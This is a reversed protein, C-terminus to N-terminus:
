SATSTAAPAQMAPDSVQLSALLKLFAQHEPLNDVALNPDTWNGVGTEVIEFELVDASRALFYASEVTGEFRGLVISQYTHSGIVKPTFESQTAPKGSPDHIAHAIMVASPSSGAPIAYDRVYIIGAPQAGSGAKAYAALLAADGDAAGEEEAYGQPLAFAVGQAAMEVNGAPCPAFACNPGTRGVSTGDPCIKAELTCATGAPTAATPRSMANRYLFGAIGIVVILLIGLLLTKM